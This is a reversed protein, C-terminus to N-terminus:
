SRRSATAAGRFAKAILPQWLKIAEVPTISAKGRLESYLEQRLEPSLRRFVADFDPIPPPDPVGARRMIERGANMGELFGKYSARARAVDPFDEM